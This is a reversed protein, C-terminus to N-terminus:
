LTEVEIPKDDLECPWGAVYRRKMRQANRRAGWSTVHLSLGVRDMGSPPPPNEGRRLPNESACFFPNPSTAWVEAWWQGFGARYVRALVQESTGIM